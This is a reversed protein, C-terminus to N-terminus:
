LKGLAKLVVDPTMPITRVTVGTANAISNILAPIPGCTTLEGAGKCGFATVPDISQVLLPDIPPIDAATPYPHDVFSTNLVVGTAPDYITDALMGEGMGTVAGGLTQGEVIDLNLARGADMGNVGELLNLGGTEVDVEIENAVGCQTMINIKNNYDSTYPLMTGDGIISYYSPILDGYPIGTEPKGKVQVKGEKGELEEPSVELRPAALVFLQELVDEAGRRSATSMSIAHKSGSARSTEPIFGTDYWVCRVKEIPIDLVEAVVQSQTTHIAMGANGGVASILDVAGDTDM